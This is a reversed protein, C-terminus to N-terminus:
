FCASILLWLVWAAAKTIWWLVLGGGIAMLISGARRGGWERGLLKVMSLISVIIECWEELSPNSGSRKGSLSDGADPANPASPAIEEGYEDVLVDTGPVRYRKETM